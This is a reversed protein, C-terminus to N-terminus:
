WVWPVGPNGATTVFWDTIVSLMDPYRDFPGMEVHRQELVEVDDGEQLWFEFRAWWAMHHHCYHAHVVLSTVPLGGCPHHTM